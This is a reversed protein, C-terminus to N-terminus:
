KREGSAVADRWAEIPIRVYDGDRIASKRLAQMRGSDGVGAGRMARRESEAVRRERRRATGERTRLFDAVAVVDDTKM